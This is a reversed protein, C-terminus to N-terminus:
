PTTQTMLHIRLGANLGLHTPFSFGNPNNSGGRGGHRLNLAEVANSIFGDPLTKTQMKRTM